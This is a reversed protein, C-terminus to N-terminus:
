FTCACHGPNCVKLLTSFFVPPGAALRGPQIELEALSERRASCPPIARFSSPPSLGAASKLYGGPKEQQNWPVAMRGTPPGIQRM